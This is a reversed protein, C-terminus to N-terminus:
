VVLWFAIAFQYCVERCLVLNRFYSTSRELNYLRLETVNTATGSLFPVGGMSVNNCYVAISRLRWDLLLDMKITPIITDNTAISHNYFGVM